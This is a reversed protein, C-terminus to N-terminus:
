TSANTESRQNRIEKELGPMQKKIRMRIMGLKRADRALVVLLHDNIPTGVIVADDSELMLSQFGSIGLERGMKAMGNWMMASSAGTKEM